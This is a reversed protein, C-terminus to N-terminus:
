RRHDFAELEGKVALRQGRREEHRRKRNEAQRWVRGSCGAQRCNCSRYTLVWRSFVGDSFWYKRQEFPDDTQVWHPRHRDTRSM